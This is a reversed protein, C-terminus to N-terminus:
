TFEGCETLFVKTVAGINQHQVELLSSLFFFFLRPSEWTLGTHLLKCLQGEKEYVGAEPISIHSLHAYHNRKKPEDTM